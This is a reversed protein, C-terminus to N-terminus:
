IKNGNTYTTCRWLAGRAEPFGIRRSFLLVYICSVIIRHSTTYQTYFYEYECIFKPFSLLSDWPMKCPILDEAKRRLGQKPKERQRGGWVTLQSLFEERFCSSLYPHKFSKSVNFSFFYGIRYIRCGPVAAWKVSGLPKLLSSLWTPNAPFSNKKQSSHVKRKLNSPFSLISKASCFTLSLM